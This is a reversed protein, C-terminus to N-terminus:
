IVLLLRSKPDPHLCRKIITFLVSGSYGGYCFENYVYEDDSKEDTQINKRDIGFVFYAFMRGISWIASNKHVVDIAPIHTVNNLEPAKFRGFSPPFQLTAYGNNKDFSILKSTNAICFRGNVEIIDDIDVDIFTYGSRHLNALQISIDHLLQIPENMLLRCCVEDSERCYDEGNLRSIVSYVVGDVMDYEDVFRKVSKEKRVYAVGDEHFDCCSVLELSACFDNNADECIVEMSYLYIILNVVVATM